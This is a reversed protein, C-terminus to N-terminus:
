SIVLQNRGKEKAEYVALDAKKILSSYEDIKQKITSSEHNMVAAGMSFTVKLNSTDSDLFGFDYSSLARQLRDFIGSVKDKETNPLIVLFEEGGYRGIIDDKRLHESCISAFRKLVEDGVDHGHLDNIKKFHDLDVIAFALPTKSKISYELAKRALVEISRRNDVGTLPDTMALIQMQKWNQRKQLSFAILLAVLILMIYLRYTTRIEEENKQEIVITKMINDKKLIDARKKITDVEYEIMLQKAKMKERHLFADKQIKNLKELSRLSSFFDNRNQTILYTAELYDKDRDALLYHSALDSAKLLSSNASDWEKAKAYVLALLANGMFLQEKHSKSQYVIMADNINSAANVFDGLEMLARAISIQAHAYNVHEGITRSLDAAKQAHKLSDEWLALAAYSLSTNIEFM